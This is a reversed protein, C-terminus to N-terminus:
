FALHFQSIEAIVQFFFLKKKRMFKRSNKLLAHFSKHIPTRSLIGDARTEARLIERM